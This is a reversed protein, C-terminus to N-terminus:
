RREPANVMPMPSCREPRAGLRVAMARWEPGHGHETVVVHALLHRLTDDMEKPTLFASLAISAPQGRYVDAKRVKGFSTRLRTSVTLVVDDRYGSKKRLSSLLRRAKVMSFAPNDATIPADNAMTSAGAWCM